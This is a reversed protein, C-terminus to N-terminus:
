RRPSGAPLSRWHSCSLRGRNGGAGVGWTGWLRAAAILCFGLYPACCVSEFGGEKRGPPAGQEAHGPAAPALPAWCLSPLSLFPHLLPLTCFLPGCITEPPPPLPFPSFPRLSNPLCPFALISGMFNERESFLSYGSALLPLPCPLPLSLPLLPRRRSQLGSLAGWPFPPSPFAGPSSPSCFYPLGWAAFVPCRWFPAPAERAKPGVAGKAGQTHTGQAPRWSREAWPSLPSLFFLVATRAQTPRGCFHAWPLPVFPFPPPPASTPAGRVSSPGWTLAAPFIEM